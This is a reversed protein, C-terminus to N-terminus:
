KPKEVIEIEFVLPAYAPISGSGSYGYGLDSYFVGIAKTGPGCNAMNWITQSFGPVVSSEGMTIDTYKEGWSISVPSYTKSSSYIYNDKAVDEITTDFVIGDGYIEPLKLLSGTYNIYITTDQSFEKESEVKNLMKFYFGLSTSDQIHCGNFAGDFFDPRDFCEEMKKLQWDNINKAFDVLKIEYITNSFETSVDLYEEETAYDSYSMLWSPVIFKKEGGARMGSLADYLGAQITESTTTQVQVGYYGAPDYEGLQKAYSEDTYSTITGTLTRTVYRLIAFGDKEVAAGTGAVTYEPLEYIGRGSRQAEPANISLWADFVRRNAENAGESVVKACSGLAALAAVIMSIKYIGKM